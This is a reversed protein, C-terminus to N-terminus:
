IELSNFNFSKTVPDEEDSMGCHVSFFLLQCFLHHAPCKRKMQSTMVSMNAPDL